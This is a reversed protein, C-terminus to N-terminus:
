RVGGLAADVQACLDAALTALLASGETATAGTPDGLVGSSSVAAVGHARLAGVLESLPATVGVVAEHHRVLQPALALVLSTETRGAHADAGSLRPSFVVVDDGELRATAAVRVLADANGGHGSVIVVARAWGRTSRILETLWAALTDTGVSLTGAFGAHEGSAGVGVEPAVAVDARHAALAGCLASAVLTDTSLPLHPGHQECAGLPVALVLDAGREAVEPWTRADLTAAEHRRSV